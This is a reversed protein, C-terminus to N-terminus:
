KFVIGFHECPEPKLLVYINIFIITQPPKTKFGTDLEVIAKITTNIAKNTIITIYTTVEGPV